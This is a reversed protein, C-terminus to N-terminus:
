LQEGYQEKVLKNAATEAIEHYIHPDTETKFLDSSNQCLNFLQRNSISTKKIDIQYIIADVINKFNREPITNM